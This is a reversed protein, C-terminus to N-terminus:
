AKAALLVTKGETIGNENFSDVRVFYEQGAVLAGVRQENAFTM